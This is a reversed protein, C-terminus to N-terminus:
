PRRNHPRWREYEQIRLLHQLLSSSYIKINFQDISALTGDTVVFLPSALSRTLTMTKSSVPSAVNLRQFDITSEAWDQAARQVTSNIVLGPQLISLFRQSDTVDFVM